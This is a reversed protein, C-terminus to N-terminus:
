LSAKLGQRVVLSKVLAVAPIVGRDRVMDEFLSQFNQTIVPQKKWCVESGATRRTHTSPLPCFLLCPLCLFEM